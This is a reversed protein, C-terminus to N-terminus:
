PAVGLWPLLLRTVLAYVAGIAIGAALAAAGATWCGRYRRPNVFCCGVLAVFLVDLNTLM